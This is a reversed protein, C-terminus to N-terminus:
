LNWEVPFRTRSFSERSEELMAVWQPKTYRDSLHFLVLHSCNAAAALEAVQRVTTHHNRKALEVDAHRYQAECVVVDCDALVSSLRQFAEQDLLFDTLYAISDGHTETLLESRLDSLAYTKGDITVDTAVADTKLDKMWPGPRIGMAALRETSVNISPKERVLYGLCPGHHSLPIASVTFDDDDLVVESRAHVGANHQEKFSESLQYRYRRIESPWIDNVTWTSSMEGALNWLFGQFRHHLISSTSPPGWIRNEKSSRHFTCRFFSDFGGIHDMHCHSFFLHDIAQIESLSLDSACGDGCDFLLRTVRQGSEVRVLLANDRGPSGLVQHIIAM